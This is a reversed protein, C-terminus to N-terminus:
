TTHVMPEIGTPAFYELGLLRDRYAAIPVPHLEKPTFRYPAETTPEVMRPSRQASSEVWGTDTLRRFAARANLLAVLPGTDLIVSATM